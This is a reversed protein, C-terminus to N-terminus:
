KFRQTSTRSIVKLDRIKSLRTLIEEQIGDCFYEQDRGQSLDAFPLVAISKEPPLPAPPALYFSYAFAAAALIAAPLALLAGRKHRKIRSVIAERRAKT